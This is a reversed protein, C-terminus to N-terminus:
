AREVVSTPGGVVFQRYRQHYLESLTLFLAVILPGYVIGLVGFLALGGIISLFILLSPLQVQAGILKTKVVNEVFLGQAANFVLFGVAAGYRGQALLVVAAPV